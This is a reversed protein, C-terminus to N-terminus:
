SNSCPDADGDADRKSLILLARDIDRVKIGRLAILVTKLLTVEDSTLTIM